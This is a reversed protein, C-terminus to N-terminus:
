RRAMWAELPGRLGAAMAPRAAAAAASWLLLAVAALGASGLQWGLGAGSLLLAGLLSVGVYLSLTYRGLPVIARLLAPPGAHWATALAAAFGAALLWGVPGVLGPWPRVADSGISTVTAAVAYVANVVLGLPLALRAARAVGARWRGRTLLGVRGAIFGALMLMMIEPGFLLVGGVLAEVYVRANLEVFGAVGSVQPYSPPWLADFRADSSIWAFSLAFALLALLFWFRLQRIVRRLRTNAQALLLLGCLGYLTLVDGAYLLAGHLVGLVLMRHQRRRATDLGRSRLALAQSYGFLFALLPYAKGQLLWAVVGFVTWALPSDAPAPVGLPSGWPGTPYSLLNVVVVGLLASARLADILPERRGIPNV